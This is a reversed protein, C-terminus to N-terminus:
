GMTGRCFSRTLKKNSFMFTQSGLHIGFYFFITLFNLRAAYNEASVSNNWIKTWLAGLNVNPLSDDIDPWYSIQTSPSIVWHSYKPSEACLNHHLKVFCMSLVDWQQKRKETLFICTSNNARHLSSFVHRQPYCPIFNEKRSWKFEKGKRRERDRRLMVFACLEHNM